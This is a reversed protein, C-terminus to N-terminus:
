NEWTTISSQKMIKAFSIDSYGIILIDLSVVNHIPSTLTGDTDSYKHINEIYIQLDYHLPLM